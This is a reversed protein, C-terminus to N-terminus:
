NKKADEVADAESFGSWKLAEHYLREIVKANKDQLSDFDSDAFARQGKDDYASLLVVWTFLKVDEETNGLKLTLARFKARVAGDFQRFYLTVGWEPVEVPHFEVDKAAFIAHKLSSM